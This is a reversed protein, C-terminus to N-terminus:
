DKIWAKTARAVGGILLTKALEKILGTEIPETEESEYDEALEAYTDENLAVLEDFDSETVEVEVPNATVEYISEGVTLQLNGDLTESIGIDYSSLEEIQALLDLLGAPTFMFETTEQDM